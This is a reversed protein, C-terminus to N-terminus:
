VGIAISDFTLHPFSLVAVSVLNYLKLENTRENTRQNIPQKTQQKRARNLSNSETPRTAM